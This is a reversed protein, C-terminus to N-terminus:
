GYLAVKGMLRLSSPFQFWLFRLKDGPKSGEKWCRRPFVKTEFGRQLEKVKLQDRDLRVPHKPERVIRVIKRV